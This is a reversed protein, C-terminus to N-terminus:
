EEDRLGPVSESPPEGPLMWVWGSDYFSITWPLKPDDLGPRPGGYVYEVVFQEEEWNFDLLRRLVASAEREKAVGFSWMRAVRSLKERHSIIALAAEWPHPEFIISSKVVPITRGSRLILIIYMGGDKRSVFYSGDEGEVLGFGFLVYHEYPLPAQVTVRSMFPGERWQYSALQIDRASVPSPVLVIALTIVATAVAALLLNGTFTRKRSYM